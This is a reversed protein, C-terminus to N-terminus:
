SEEYGSLMVSAVMSFAQSWADEVDRTWLDGALEKMAAMMSSAVAGYHEPLAGYDQHRRGMSKLAETLKDTNRLNKVVLVLSSLLHRRQQAMDTNAFLPKVEPHRQFLLQYFREVLAEGQPALAGFSSELLEIRLGSASGAYGSSSM